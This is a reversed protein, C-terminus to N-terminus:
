LLTSLKEIVLKFYDPTLRSIKKHIESKNLSYTKNLRLWSETRLPRSLQGTPLVMCFENQIIGDIIVPDTFIPICLYERVPNLKGNSIFLVPRIKYGTKEKNKEDQFPFKALVVDRQRYSKPRHM